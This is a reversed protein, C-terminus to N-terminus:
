NMKMEFDTVKNGEVECVLEGSIECYGLENLQLHKEALKWSIAKVNPGAFTKLEGDKPDIAKITTTFTM